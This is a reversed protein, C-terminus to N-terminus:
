LDYNLYQGKRFKHIYMIANEPVYSGSKRRKRKKPRSYESGEDTVSRKAGVWNKM